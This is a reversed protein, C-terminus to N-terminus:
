GPIRIRQTHTFYLKWNFSITVYIYAVLQFTNMTCICIHLLSVDFGYIFASSKYATM